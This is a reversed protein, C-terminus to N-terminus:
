EFDWHCPDKPAKVNPGTEDTGTIIKQPQKSPM